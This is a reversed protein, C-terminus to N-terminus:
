YPRRRIGLRYLLPSLLIEGAFFVAVVAAIEAIGLPLWPTLALPPLLAEPIQDLGTARASAPLGRRRKLFSSLLDGAMSFAAAWAGLWWPWGLWPATAAALLLAAILGRWTKSAGFLPHGDALRRDGDVPRAYRNGLLNRAFVPGGNAAALIILVQVTLGLNM